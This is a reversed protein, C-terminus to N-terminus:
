FFFLLIGLMISAQLIKKEDKTKKAGEGIMCMIGTNKGENGNAIQIKSHAIHTSM